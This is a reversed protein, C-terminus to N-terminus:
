SWAEATGTVAATLFMILGLGAAGIRLRRSVTLEATTFLAVAGLLVVVWLSFTRVRSRIDNAEDAWEDPDLVGPSLLATAQESSLEEIRDTLDFPQPEVGPEELNAGLVNLGFVGARAARLSATARTSEAAEALEDAEADDGGARAAGAQADLETAVAYDSLYTNYEDAQRVAEVAVNVNQQEVKITEGVAQRDDFAATSGIQAARWTFLGACVTTLGILLAILRKQNEESM